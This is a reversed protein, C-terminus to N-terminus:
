ATEWMADEKLCEAIAKDAAEETPFTHALNEGWPDVVILKDGVREKRYNHDM